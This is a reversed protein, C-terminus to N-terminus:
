FLEVSWRRKFVQGPTIMNIGEKQIFQQHSAVSDAIGCWPEICIFNGNKGSWIGLFPFGEFHVSIGHASKDSILKLSTSNLYKFVLADKNFLEHTLPLKKQLILEETPLAEILGERSIPWRGTTEEEGFEIYYDEFAINEELPVNFAPHGGVSFYMEHPSTNLVNYQISVKNLQLIYIIELRFDFPFNTLTSATSALTFSLSHDSKATMEFDMERAFGHRSLHYTKNQFHYTDNKLTGVVPFLIPSHKAWFAPDGNWLYDLKTAKSYLKSLEAGRTNVEIKLYDNEISFM